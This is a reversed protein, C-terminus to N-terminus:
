RDNFICFFVQTIRPSFSYLIQYKILMELIEQIILSFLCNSKNQWSWIGSFYSYKQGWLILYNIFSDISFTVINTRTVMWGYAHEDFQKWGTSLFYCDLYTTVKVMFLKFNKKYTQYKSTRLITKTTVQWIISLHVFLNLVIGWISVKCSSFLWCESLINLTAIPKM